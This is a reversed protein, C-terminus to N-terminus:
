KQWDVLSENTVRFSPGDPQVVNLLKLDMRTGGLLLEPVYDSPKRHGFINRCFTQDHLGDGKGGTAPRDVRIIEKKAADM